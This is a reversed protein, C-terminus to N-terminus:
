NQTEQATSPLSTWPPKALLIKGGGFSIERKCSQVISSVLALGVKYAAFVEQVTPVDGSGYRNDIVESERRLKKLLSRDTGIGHGAVDDFLDFLNHTERFKGTKHQSFAKLTLEVALHINWLIGLRAAAENRVAKAAAAEFEAPVGNLLGYMVDDSPEIGMSNIRISRLAGAVERADRALTKKDSEGLAAVNPSKGLWALPDEDSEVEKPFCLWATEGPTEVRGRTLPVVLEVPLNRILVFGHARGSENAHLLAGYHERYWNEVHHYIIAFWPRTVYDITRTKDEITDGNRIEFVMEDVFITAACLLRESLSMEGRELEADIDPMVNRIYEALHDPDKVKEASQEAMVIESDFGLAPIIGGFNVFIPRTRCAPLGLGNANPAGREPPFHWLMTQQM